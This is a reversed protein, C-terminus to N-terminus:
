LTYLKFFFLHKGMEFMGTEPTRKIRGTAIGNPGYHLDAYYMGTLLMIITSIIFLYGNIKLTKQSELKRYAIEFPRKLSSPPKSAIYAPVMDSFNIELEEEDDLVKVHLYFKNRRM